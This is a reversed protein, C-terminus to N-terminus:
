ASQAQRMVLKLISAGRAGLAMRIGIEQRREAVTYAIVGYLGVVALFLTVAAFLTLLLTLFRDPALAEAVVESMARVRQPALAGDIEAVARRMDPVSALPDRGEAVRVAFFLGAPSVQQYSLYVAERRDDRISFHRTDAVVGVVEWTPADASGGLVLRQGVPNRDPFHREALTENVLLVRPADRVDGPEVWRGSILRLGM